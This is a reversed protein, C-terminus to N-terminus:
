LRDYEEGRFSAKQSKICFEGEPVDHVVALWDAPSRWRSESSQDQLLRAIPMRPLAGAWLNLKMNFCMLARFTSNRKGGM